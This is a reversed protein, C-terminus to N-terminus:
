EYPLLDVALTDRFMHPRMQDDSDDVKYFRTAKTCDDGFGRESPM